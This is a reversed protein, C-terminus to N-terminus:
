TNSVQNTHTHTHTDMETAILHEVGPEHTHTTHTHKEPTNGRTNLVHRTSLVTNSQPVKPFYHRTNAYHKRDRSSAEERPTGLCCRFLMAARPSMLCHIYHATVFGGGLDVFYRDSTLGSKLWCKVLDKVFKYRALALRLGISILGRLPKPACANRPM